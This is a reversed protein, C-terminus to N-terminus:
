VQKWSAGLVLEGTDDVKVTQLTERNLGLLPKLSGTLSSFLDGVIDLWVSQIPGFSTVPFTDEGGEM